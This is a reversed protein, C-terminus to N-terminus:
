TRQDEQHGDLHEQDHPLRQCRQDLTALGQDRLRRVSQNEAKSKQEQMHVAQPSPEGDAPRTLADILRYLGQRLM